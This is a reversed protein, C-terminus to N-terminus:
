YNVYGSVSVTRSSNNRIALTYSGREDVEFTYNVSGGTVTVFHFLGDPDLYGFDVSASSPSYSAQITITEGAELDFSQGAKSLTDASVDLSFRKSSRQILIEAGTDEEPGVAGAYVGLGSALVACALLTLLCRETKM